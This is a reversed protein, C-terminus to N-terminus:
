TMLLNKSKSTLTELSTLVFKLDAGNSTSSHNIIESGRATGKRPLFMETVGFM